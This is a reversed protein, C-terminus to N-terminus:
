PFPAKTLLERAVIVAFRPDRLLYRKWLRRPERALRYLWELGMDSIWRPARKMAGAVFDFTAGVGILVAPAVASRIQDAWVEQKPSGLALLLLQPAAARIAELVASQESLSRDVDVLPSSTGVVRIGPFRRELAAKVRDAVGPAGGLLYVRWGRRAAVNALPLVLDSGSVKEPLPNGLMRAAWVVPMGDVLVLDANEYARRFRVDEEALVFHDVNPTFVVGGRGADVLRGIAELADAFGLM